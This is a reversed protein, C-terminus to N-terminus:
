VFEIDDPVFIYGKGRVTKLYKPVQPNDGLKKRLRSIRLDVTRDTIREGKTSVLRCIEERSVTQNARAALINLITREADSLSVTLDCSSLEGRELDFIFDGFAIRGIDAKESRRLVAKIRLLVEQPSFPKPIYDDVGALLGDIRNEVTTRASLIIVPTTTTSIIHETLSIGNEGPLMVDVLALDFGITQLLIRAEEADGAPSCHFGNCDLFRKLLQSIKLDDEVVLIHPRISKSNASDIM